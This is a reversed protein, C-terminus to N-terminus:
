GEWRAFSADGGAGPTGGRLQQPRGVARAAAGGPWDGSTSLSADGNFDDDFDALAKEGPSPAAAPAAAAPGVM